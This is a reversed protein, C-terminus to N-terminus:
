SYTCTSSSLRTESEFLVQAKGPNVDGDMTKKYEEEVELYSLPPWRHEEVYVLNESQLLAFEPRERVVQYKSAIVDLCWASLQLANPCQAKILLGLLFVISM